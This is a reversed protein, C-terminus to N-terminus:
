SNVSMEEVIMQAVIEATAPALLVGNRYHGSAIIVRDYGSIKSIIPAIQREPRPRLGSWKRIIKAAALVPCFAIAKGMVEDLKINDAVIEGEGVPFEVTAGVWFEGKGLPVIHVDDGTIVPQFDANGLSNELQLHLAQGLVPRIDVTQKLSATIPTSGLGAAIILWDCELSEGTSQVQYCGTASIGVDLVTRNFQFDVGKEKAADVLALTLVTPDLQRDQPSYVGTIIGDLNLYPFLERLKEVDWIELEWGQSKRTIVLKEWNSLDEEELCLMLIGDRNVPIKRKTIAELEPILTEYRKISNERLQWNRGKVKQSVVGMLVGLAAGTSAKAPTEQDLVTIKLEPVQSLQYAITAGIVGCGIIVVRSMLRNETQPIRLFQIM